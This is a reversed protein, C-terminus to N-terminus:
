LKALQALSPLDIQKNLSESTSVFVGGGRFIGRGLTDNHKSLLGNVSPLGNRWSPLLKYHLEQPIPVTRLATRLASSFAPHYRMVIAARDPQPQVPSDRALNRSPSYLPASALMSRTAPHTPTAFYSALFRAHADSPNDSLARARRCLALPWAQHVYPSHGSTVCLPLPVKDLAPNVVLAGRFITVSLDLMRVTSSSISRVVCKFYDLAPKFVENIFFLM